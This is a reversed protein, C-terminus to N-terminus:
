TSNIDTIRSRDVGYHELLVASVTREIAANRAFCLSNYDDETIWGLVRCPNVLLLKSQRWVFFGLIGTFAALPPGLHEWGLKADLLFVTTTSAGLLRLVNENPGRYWRFSSPDLNASMMLGLTALDGGNDGNVGGHIYFVGNELAFDRLWAKKVEGLGLYIRMCLVLPVLFALSLVFFRLYTLLSRPQCNMRVYLDEGERRLILDTALICEDQFRSVIRIPISENLVLDMEAVSGVAEGTKLSPVVRNVIDEAVQNLEGGVGHAFFHSKRGPPLDWNAQLPIPKLDIVSTPRSFAEFDPIQRRILRMFPFFWWWRATKNRGSLSIYNKSRNVWTESTRRVMTRAILDHLARGKSNFPALLIGFPFIFKVGTRILARFLGAKSGADSQVYLGFFLKGLTGGFPSATMGADYLFFCVCTIWILPIGFISNGYIDFFSFPIQIFIEVIFDLFVVVSLDICFAGVRQFISAAQFSQLATLNEKTTM